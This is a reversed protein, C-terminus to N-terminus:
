GDILQNWVELMSSHRFLAVACLLALWVRFCVPSQLSRTSGPEVPLFGDPIAPVWLTETSPDSKQSFRIPGINLLLLTSVSRSDEGDTGKATIKAHLVAAATRPVAAGSAGRPLRYSLRSSWELAYRSERFSELSEEACARTQQDLICTNWVAAHTVFGHLNDTFWHVITVILSCLGHSTDNL